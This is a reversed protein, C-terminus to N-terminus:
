GGAKKQQERAVARWGIDRRCFGGPWHIRDVAEYARAQAEAVTRGCATVNLVRGGMALLRGDRRETGAHFIQVGEIEGAADLGGIETGKAYDGPYGKSAMVVTLAVEDSWRLDFSDLVGDVTALLAALLDSKLRMLLVQAEPDGFRVNYEILKPGEATLMLGAFLVGRFPTGRAAMGRVTPLIIEDMTRQVLAPTMVPAPSYAGMGGTNPGTDGDGARKHDQATALALTNQGDVLAFFSAEEGELFEEVVVEHGASGFAGAFCIDIAADAEARTTAIMVGKGAALGDAKIVIPLPQMAAYAKAPAAETFRRYAGTPIGLEACLDKAFGKSGELQAAARSPGFVKIGAGALDDVLGAVLPLEPGVVVLDIAKERAFQIIASHDDTKLSVCEAVEAIGANGPACYLRTMLPSAALALALAHERGGSGILLVNM